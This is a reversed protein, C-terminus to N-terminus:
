RTWVDSQMSRVGLEVSCDCQHWQWNGQSINWSLHKTSILTYTIQKSHATAKATM